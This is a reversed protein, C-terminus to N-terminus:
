SLSYSYWRLSRIWSGKSSFCRRWYRKKLKEVGSKLGTYDCM